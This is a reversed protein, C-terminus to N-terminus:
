KGPSEFLGPLYLSVEPVFTVVGLVAICIAIMPLATWSLEELGVRENSREITSAWAHRGDVHELSLRDQLAM